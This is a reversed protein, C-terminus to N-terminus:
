FDELFRECQKIIRYNYPDDAKTTFNVKAERLIDKVIAKVIDLEDEKDCEFYRMEFGPIAKARALYGWKAM